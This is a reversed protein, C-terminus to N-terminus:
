GAQYAPLLRRLCRYCACAAAAPPPPLLLRRDTM